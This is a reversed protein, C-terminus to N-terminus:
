KMMSEFHIQILLHSYNALHIISKAKINVCDYYPWCHNRQTQSAWIYFQKSQSVSCMINKLFPIYPLAQANILFICEPASGPLPPPLASESWIHIRGQCEHTKTKNLYMLSIMNNTNINNNFKDFYLLKTITVSEAIHYHCFMISALSLPPILSSPTCALSIPPILSSPTCALSLPPILSSPTCALSLPPILSSPTCALSLPPILSSPTCALSLPPILSSPTCALSLPPILSSPTCALSLPPILSSPTCALSLPPILSSPTCALSLPPILSSPTCALSLPSLPPPPVHWALPPYPLLPYM